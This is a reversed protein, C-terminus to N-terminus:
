VFQTLIPLDNIKAMVTNVIGLVIGPQSCASLINASKIFSHTYKNVSLSFHLLTPFCGWGVNLYLPHVPFLFSCGGWQFTLSVHSSFWSSHSILDCHLEYPPGFHSTLKRGPTLSESCLGHDRRPLKGFLQKEKEEETVQATTGQLTPVREGEVEQTGIERGEGCLWGPSREKSWHWGMQSLFATDAQLFLFALHHVCNKLCNYPWFM